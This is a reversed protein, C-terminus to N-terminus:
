CAQQLTTVTIGVAGYYFKSHVELVILRTVPHNSPVLHPFKMAPANHIRGGCHIVTLQRHFSRRLQKVLPDLKKYFPLIEDYYASYQAVMIWCKCAISLESSSFDVNALMVTVHMKSLLFLILLSLKFGVSPGTNHMAM